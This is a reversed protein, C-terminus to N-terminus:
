RMFQNKEGLITKQIFALVIAIKTVQLLSPSKLRYLNEKVYSPLLCTYSPPKMRSQVM